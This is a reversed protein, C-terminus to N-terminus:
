AHSLIYAWFNGSTPLPQCLTGVYVCMHVCVCVRLNRQPLPQLVHLLRRVQQTLANLFRVYNMVVRGRFMAGCVARKPVTVLPFNPPAVRRAPEQLPVPLQVLHDLHPTISVCVRLCLCLCVSFVCVRM